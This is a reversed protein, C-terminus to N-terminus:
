YNKNSRRADYNDESEAQAICETDNVYLIDKGCEKEHNYPCDIYSCTVIINIDQSMREGGALAQRHNGISQM